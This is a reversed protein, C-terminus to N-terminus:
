PAAPALPAAHLVQPEATRRGARWSRAAVLLSSGAMLAAAFVPLLLGSAALTLAVANYAFAWALNARISRRAQDAKDLLWPLAGLGARPLVVDASEKALDAAGAVAIGVSAAALVPGDNLGDGVMAVPGRRAAWARLLHVKAEPEVESRWEGIGLASAVQAVAASADGSLLLTSLHRRHLAAIVDHAEPVPTAALEVLGHVAADWGILASTCAPPTRSWADPVTWHLATMLQRSGMACQRGDIRGVVGAGPRVEIDDAVQSSQGGGMEALARAIPHDSGRALLAACHLVEAATAGHVSLSVPRLAAETLTGTKDFAVGALRALRELVAGNRILIGRQAAEGIALASALPAALGLSCPCAVVLVALGALLADEFTGRGSWFGATAAALLLMGPIFVAVVRDVTDGMLSKDALADRVLRGIRVWRTQTGPVTARVLLLGGGNLSGAHVPAGPSKASPTPQGTLIAEDCESRGEVVIGDVAIREGPLVRVLDGPQIELVPRLASVGDRVLRVEAREAALMPALSRAARVRGQAELYRGLTFLVLVMAATDFYVLDSGRLVQWASYVYAALVGVCVLTDTALRGERLAQGANAFFPAGLIAVLPTALVWILWGVPQALWADDGSFAGAYLLWSLTMVNMALFAGVGLRILWAAAEPEEREGHHLQYALACGYCCFAHREGRIERERGLRGVPLQCHSCGM